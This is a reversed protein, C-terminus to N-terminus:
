WRESGGDGGGGRGVELVGADAAAEIRLRLRGAATASLIGVRLGTPAVGGPCAVIMDESGGEGRGPEV